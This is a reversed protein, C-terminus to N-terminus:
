CFLACLCPLLLYVWVPGSGTGAAAATTYIKRSHLSQSSRFVNHYGANEPFLAMLDQDVKVSEKFITWVVAENCSPTTLSGSYRFYSERNVNGLLDDISIEDTVEVESKIDKINSLYHTLTKWAKMDSVSSSTPSPTEALVSSSKNNTSQPAEILFGLVALGDPTKLAEDLTLDKRKSVIHMEMPYRKKDVTHESGESDASETGWHFHFQLTSYDHDLGGGSVEVLGDELVCEVTHGTNTISKIAHKNDFNTFTFSNLTGNEVVSDTSIDIPSQSEGDCHSGPLDSWHSPTYDPACHDEYCWLHALPTAPSATVNRGNLPQTPRYNPAISNETSFHLLLDKHVKIPEHFLTWVVVEDCYPTTLSGMYRYFKTRDVNGILDDITINDVKVSSGEERVDKLYSTFTKWPWSLNGDETADIFFGLVALGDEHSLTENPLLGKKSAVIHMEMPYRHSDLAHESGSYNAVDWHFHFQLVSYEGDLGGGSVEVENVEIDCQVSHGNNTINKIASQSSFNVFTFNHLNPDITVISTVIDIPSQKGGGCQSGPLAEWHEPTHGCNIYCWENSKVLVVLTLGLVLKLLSMKCNTKEFTLHFSHSLM